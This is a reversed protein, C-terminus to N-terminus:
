ECSLRFIACEGPDPGRIARRGAADMLDRLDLPFIRAQGDGAGTALYRGDSSYALSYVEAPHPLDALARLSTVEWRRAARDRGVTALQSGDPSYALDNIAAGAALRQQEAGSTADWLAITGATDATALQRGDPRFALGQVSEGFTLTLSLREAGNAVEWLKISGNLDGSAVLGGDPSFAVTLVEAGHGAFSLREEGTATDWIRVSGDSSASALLSSDPSYALRNIQAEHGVLSRLEEGTATDILSILGDYDGLAVSTANPAYSLVAVGADSPVTFLLAGSAVDWLRGGSAGATALRSGDLSYAVQYAGDEPALSLDWRRLTGDLSATTLSISDASFVAGSVTNTHGNLVLVSRGDAIAWIRASSDEGTTVLETGDASFSVTEVSSSHGRLVDLPSGDAASWLRVSLDTSSTALTEGDPSYALDTVISLHGELTLAVEGTALDWVQALSNDLAAALQTGNPSFALGYIAGDTAFTLLEDGSAMDWLRVQGDRGGSALARGDPSFAVDLLDDSHFILRRRETGSAVEWIVVESGIGAALLGGDPSFSLGLAPLDEANTSISRLEKLSRADFLRVTGDLGTTALLRGDPSAVLDQLGRESVQVIQRVRSSYVAQQLAEVSERTVEEGRSSVTDVAARSLILSRLPDTTLSGTAAAALERSVSARRQQEATNYFWLATGLGILALVSLISAGVALGRLRAAARRAQRCLELYDREGATLSAANAAAWGEAERLTDGRLLLGAPRGQREWLEAQRQLTSLNAAFWAANSAQVPAILRDHALEYWTAGRRPEARVLYANILSGIATNALGNSQGEGQLVQGRVGQPTILENQFWSRIAREGVGTAAATAAVREAYYDGLAAGVDGLADLDAASIATAGPSLREWLRLGVVQLQVPEVSPGLQEIITGDAQQVNARRLDDILRRALPEPFEVGAARTPQQLAALAGEPGLLDLRFHVALRTPLARAFPEIAAVFEERMIFLAWLQRSELALGLEEFFALKAAQDTPDLTLIEEFQDFLLVADEDAPLRAALYDRLSLTDLQDPAIQAEPPQGEELSRITAARYRNGLGAAPPSQGVRVIPLLRFEREELMPILAAQVLSTKGAGSPSHLLVIREAILTSLLSRAEFDRGYLREGTQFSRPGLFPTPRIPNTM